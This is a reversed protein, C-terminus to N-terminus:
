RYPPEHKRGVLRQRAENSSDRIGESAAEALAMAPHNVISPGAVRAQLEDRLRELSVGYDTAVLRIGGSVYRPDSRLWQAQDPEADRSETVVDYEGCITMELASGDSCFSLDTLSSWPIRCHGDRRHLELSHANLVVRMHRQRVITSVLGWSFFAVVGAFFLVWAMESSLCAALLCLLIGASLLGARGRIRPRLVTTSDPQTMTLHPPVDDTM